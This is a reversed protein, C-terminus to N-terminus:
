RGQGRASSGGTVELVGITHDGGFGAKYRM